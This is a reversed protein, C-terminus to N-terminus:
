SEEAVAKSASRHKPRRKYRKASPVVRQGMKRLAPMLPNRRRPRKASRKAAM